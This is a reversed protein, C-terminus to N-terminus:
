LLVTKCVEWFELIELDHPPPPATLYADYEEDVSRVSHSPLADYMMDFLGYQRAIDEYADPERQPQNRLPSGPVNPPKRYNGMQCHNLM